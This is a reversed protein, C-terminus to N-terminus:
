KEWASPAALMLIPFIELRGLLMCLTLVLKSMPNFIAFNGSPGVLGLGPGINFFTAVVATFSTEFDFGNASVALTAVMVIMMAAFFYGQVGSILKDDLARGDLKIVNISRPHVTKRIDRAMSKFLLQVRIVKLGGATSGACGGITMLLLLLARSFQPWLNFDETAYGTTTIISSVQFFSARLAYGFDNRYRPQGAINFAICLTAALVIGLFLKWESGQKLATWNRHIVHYYIAFNVGFLVMFVGLIVEAAPNNLAAVSGNYNSFGGTGAAGFTHILSDYWNVGVFLLVLFLILSLGIYLQYLIKATNGVRPVLKETSPGSSEARMLYISRGGMKPIVALSLVLVGMGGAWHTLSRWMLLGRPLGEANTLITAGTTTFGSVTEFFCDLLSPVAGSFFFPLAGIFSVFLWSLTVVAYGERASLTDDRPRLRSLAFGLAVAIGITLAFASWDGGRMALSVILPLFLLAGEVVVVSGSLKLILRKNM